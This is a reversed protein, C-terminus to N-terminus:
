STRRRVLAFLGGAFGLLALTGPEPVNVFSESGGSPLSIVHLGIRLSGNELSDLVDAFTSEPQLTFRIGLTEGPGVGNAPAPNDAGASFTADFPPSANNGSPLNAPTAGASFSVGASNIISELTQLVGDDFYVQAIVSAAPGANNFTFLVLGSGADTVDVSLQSTGVACDGANNNSICGFGIAFAPSAFVFLGLIAAGLPAFLRARM